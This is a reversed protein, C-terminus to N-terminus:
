MWIKSDRPVRGSAGRSPRPWIAHVVHYGGRDAAPSVCDATSVQGLRGPSDGQAAGAGLTLVALMGLLSGVANMLKM